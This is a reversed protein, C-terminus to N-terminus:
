DLRNAFVKYPGMGLVVVMLAGCGVAENGAEVVVTEGENLNFDILKTYLLNTIKLQHDGVPLERSATKGYNLDVWFEEDVIFQLGRMKLDRESTRRVELTGTMPKNGNMEIM